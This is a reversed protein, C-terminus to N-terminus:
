KKSLNIKNKKNANNTIKNNNKLKNKFISEYENNKTKNVNSHTQTRYVKYNKTAFNNKNNITNNM